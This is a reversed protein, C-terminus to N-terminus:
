QTTVKPRFHIFFPLFVCTVFHPVTAAFNQIPKFLIQRWGLLSVHRNKKFFTLLPLSKSPDVNKNFIKDAGYNLICHMKKM